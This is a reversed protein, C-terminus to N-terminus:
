RVSDRGAKAAVGLAGVVLVIGILALGPADDAEGAMAATVGVAALGIALAFFAVLRKV